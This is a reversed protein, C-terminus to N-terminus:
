FNETFFFPIGNPGTSKSIDLGDIIKAIEAPATPCLFFSSGDPNIFPKGDQRLKSLYSRYNGTQNPIKQQVKLGITSYHDNFINAIKTSDSILNNNEDLLKISSSKSAKINVLSRIGKWIDKANNRNKEFQNKNYDRKGQRKEENVRNRLIRYKKKLEIKKLPDNEKRM